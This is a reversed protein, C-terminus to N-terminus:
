EEEGTMRLVVKALTLQLLTLTRSGEAPLSLLKDLGVESVGALELGKFVGKIVGFDYTIYLLEPVTEAKEQLRFLVDSIKALTHDEEMMDALIDTYRDLSKALQEAAEQLSQKDAIVPM